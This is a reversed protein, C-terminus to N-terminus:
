EGDTDSPRRLFETLIRDYKGGPKMDCALITRLAVNEGGGRTIHGSRQSPARKVILQIKSDDSM